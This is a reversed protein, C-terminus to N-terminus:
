GEWELGTGEGKFGKGRGPWSPLGKPYLGEGERKVVKEAGKAPGSPLVGDLRRLHTAMVGACACGERVMEYFRSSDIERKPAVAQDGM